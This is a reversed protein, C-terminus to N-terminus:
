PRSSITDTFSLIIGFPKTLSSNAVEQKNPPLTHVPFPFPLPLFLQSISLLYAFAATFM